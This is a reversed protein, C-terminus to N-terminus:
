SINKLNLKTYIVFTLKCYFIDSEHDNEEFEVINILTHVSIAMTKIRSEPTVDCSTISWDIILMDSIFFINPRSAM